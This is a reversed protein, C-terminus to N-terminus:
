SAQLNTQCSDIISPTGAGRQELWSSLLRGDIEFDLWPDSGQFINAPRHPLFRRKKRTSRSNPVLRLVHPVRETDTSPPLTRPFHLIDTERTEFPDRDFSLTGLGTEIELGAEAHELRPAAIEIESFADLIADPFIAQDPVIDARISTPQTSEYSQGSRLALFWEFSNHGTRYCRIWYGDGHVDLWPTDREAAGWPCSGSTFRDADQRDVDHVGISSADALHLVSAATGDM